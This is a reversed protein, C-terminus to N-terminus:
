SSNRLTSMMVEAAFNEYDEDASFGLEGKRHIERLLNEERHDRRSSARPNHRAHPVMILYMAGYVIRVVNPIITLRYNRDNDEQLVCSMKCNHDSEQKLARNDEQLERVMKYNRDSDEKLAHNDEQLERVMKYLEAVSPEILNNACVFLPTSVMAVTGSAGGRLRLVLQLNSENQINYDSLTHGDKLQGGAFILRQLNLPIGEKDEIKRKVNDVTDLSEVEVTITKRTLTQVFIQM